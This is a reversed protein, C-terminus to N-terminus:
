FTKSIGVKFVRGLTFNRFALNPIGLRYEPPDEDFVNDINLRLTLGEYIGEGDEFNYGLVLNTTLFGDVSGQNYAGPDADSSDTYRLTIRSSFGGQEFGILGQVNMDSNYALQDTTEVGQTLDFGLQKNGAIGYTMMGGSSLLHQYSLSFDIGDMEAQSFNSTRRDYIYTIESPDAPDIVGDGFNPNAMGALLDSWLGVSPNWIHKEPFALRTAPSPVGLQGLIDNFEINYYNVSLRLGEAPQAEFGFAWSEATQPELGPLVGDLIVVVSGTGDWEDRVDASLVDSETQNAYRGTYVSLGDLATPANFSENWKGFFTLWDTARFNFGISPNTTEGFDSYDDRRVALALDLKDTVPIALEAFVSTSDRSSNSYPANSLFGSAGSGSRFDVEDEAYEFGVAMRLEGGPLDMLKGDAVSRILMLSHETQTLNSWDLITTIDSASASAIDNPDIDGSAILANQLQTNAGNNQMSNESAGYYLTNRLQWGNNFNVTLEPAIGWTDFEIDDSKNVYAPHAGYSFSTGAPYYYSQGPTPTPLNFEAIQEPTLDAPNVTVDFPAPADGGTPYGSISQVRSSYYAKLGFSMNDSLEQQLSFFANDRTQDQLATSQAFVDCPEGGASQLGTGPAGPNDTWIGYAGYYYYGYQTANPQICQAATQPEFGDESYTGTKYWDRKNARFGDRESTSLSVMVSGDDWSTGATIAADFANYEDGQSGNLDIKVGEFSDKTMFNIVGAVADAGYLSSGGDTVVDIRDISAGMVIDADISSELVGVPAIRHGDMLLLTVSGSASNFGPMNRLNPRTIAISSSARPDEETRNNFFNTVQPITALIENTNAAGLSNIEVSDLTIPQSGTVETGRILSGTVVVEELGDAGADQALALPAGLAAIVGSMAIVSQKLNFRSPQAPKASLAISKCTKM